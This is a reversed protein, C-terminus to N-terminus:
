KASTMVMVCLTVLLFLMSKSTFKAWPHLGVYRMLKASFCEKRVDTIKGLKEVQKLLGVNETKQCVADSYMLYIQINAM